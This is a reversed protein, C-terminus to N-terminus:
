DIEPMGLNMGQADRQRFSILWNERAGDNTTLEDDVMNRFAEVFVDIMKIQPAYVWEFVNPRMLLNIACAEGIYHQALTLHIDQATLVVNRMRDRDFTTVRDNGLQKQIRAIANEMPAMARLVARDVPSTSQDDAQVATPTFDEAKFVNMLYDGYFMKFRHFAEGYVEAATRQRDVRKHGEEAQRLRLVALDAEPEIGGAAERIRTYGQCFGRQVSDCRDLARDVTEDTLEPNIRFIVQTNSTGILMEAVGYVPAKVGRARLQRCTRVFYKFDMHTPSGESLLLVARVKTKDSDAGAVAEYINGADYRIGTDRIYQEYGQPDALERPCSGM